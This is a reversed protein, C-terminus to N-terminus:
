GLMGKAREGEIEKGVDRAILADSPPQAVVM